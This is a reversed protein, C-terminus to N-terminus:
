VNEKGEGRIYAIHHIYTIYPYVHLHTSPSYGKDDLGCGALKLNRM